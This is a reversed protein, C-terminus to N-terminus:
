ELVIRTDEALLKLLHEKLREVAQEVEESTEVVSGLVAAVRVRVIKKEPAALEQLARIAHSQLTEVAAIDSEMQAITARCNGCADGDESLHPTECLKSALRSLVANLRHKREEQLVQDDTSEVWNAVQAWEPLGKIEDIAAAYADLRQQHFRAYVDQYRNRVLETAQRTVDLHEYFWESESVSRLEAAAQATEDSPERAALIPYQV